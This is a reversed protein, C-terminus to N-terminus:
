RLSAAPRTDWATWLPRYGMRNWFPASMPNVQGHHLLTVPIGQADLEDHVRKVLAAGVGGSREDPRVFMSALYAAGAAGTMGAIWAADPPPQAVLMGVPRGDREALWIWPSPRALSAATDRRILAETAPRIIAVDFQADWEIVGLEFETVTDLDCPGAARIVLDAPVGPGPPMERRAPRAAIVTMPQLGHRVLARVGAVDRSPWNIMAASDQERAEPIGALHDRWLALLEDAAPLLDPGRLRAILAYQNAPSWARQVSDAPIHRHLCVGLGAPRGNEGKVVLPAMCGEPLDGPEPLLPDLAHWRKGVAKNIDNVVDRIV